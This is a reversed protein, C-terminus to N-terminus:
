SQFTLVVGLLVLLSAVEALSLFSIHIRVLLDFCGATFKSREGGKGV